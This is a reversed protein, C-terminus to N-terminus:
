VSVIGDGLPVEDDCAPPAYQERSARKREGQDHWKKQHFNPLIHDVKSTSATDEVTVPHVVDRLVAVDQRVVRM